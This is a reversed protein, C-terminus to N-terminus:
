VHNPAEEPLTAKSSAERTYAVVIVRRGEANTGQVAAGHRVWGIPSMSDCYSDAEDDTLVGSPNPHPLCRRWPGRQPPAATMSGGDPPVDIPDAHDNRGHLDLVVLLALLLLARTM